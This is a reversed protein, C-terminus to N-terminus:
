IKFRGPIFSSYIYFGMAFILLIPVFWKLVFIWHQFMRRSSSVEADIFYKEKKQQNFGRIFAVSIGLAIFPLIWNVLIGDLYVIISKESSSLTKFISGWLTPILILILLVLGSFWSARMRGLLKSFDKLNSVVVELLGISANLAAFYLCLFFVLGFLTGGPFTKFFRPLVQFMLAPDSTSTQTAQFAVPYIIMVSMLSVVTDILVVRFGSPAVSANERMYSGYTVLTGFGISLTFLVQGIAQLLSSGNLKSFDPYFLFRLVTSQMSLNFSHYLLFLVLVGFVPVIYHLWKEIGEHLEKSVVVILILVHASSLLFQLWGNQFLNHSDSLIIDSSSFFSVLFQTLFYLVWGSIVSYYSLVILSMGVSARGLWIAWRGATGSLMQTVKIIGSKESKGLILEAVVLSSGLTLALFTYILIFAGGGNEGVVYPFRWLNGLGSASGVAVLYFGFRTQWSSRTVTKM